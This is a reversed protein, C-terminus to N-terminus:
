QLLGNVEKTFGSFVSCQVQTKEGSYDDSFLLAGNKLIKDKTFFGM